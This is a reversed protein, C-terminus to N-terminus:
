PFTQVRVALKIIGTTKPVYNFLLSTTGDNELSANESAIATGNELLEVKAETGPFGAFSITPSIPTRSGRIVYENYSVNEIAIDKKADSDGIAVTFVPMGPKQAILM